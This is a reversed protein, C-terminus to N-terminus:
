KEVEVIIPASFNRHECAKELKSFADGVSDFRQALKLVTTQGLDGGKRAAWVGEELEIVWKM